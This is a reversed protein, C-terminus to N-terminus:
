IQKGEKLKKIMGELANKNAPDPAMPLAKEAYKLADKTKGIGSYGRAMGVTTTFIGPHNKYNLQFVDMAEKHNGERQLGRAYNHLEITTGRSMAEKKMSDAQPQRNLKSLIEAKTMLVSFAPISVSASNIYALADDLRTNHQLLYEAVQVQAHPDFGKQGRMEEEFSAMQLQHLKTAVKFPIALKEWVLSITATSDTEDSFEYTLREKLEKLPVPKVDVRLVDEAPDYFYSGWSNTAKSFILTAKDSAYAIFFGYKGAALKNGDVTVDTSFEMTTNENAGARWPSDKGNGFGQNQFGTHVLQGWIKGERGKVAPRGYSITVDTLGIRESVSAKVSTGSATTTLQAEAALFYSFGAIFLVIKKMEIHKIVWFYM